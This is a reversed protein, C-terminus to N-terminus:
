VAFEFRQSNAEVSVGGINYEFTIKDINEVDFVERGNNYELRLTDSSDQVTLEVKIGDTEDVKYKHGIATEEDEFETNLYESLKLMAEKIVGSSPEEKTEIKSM